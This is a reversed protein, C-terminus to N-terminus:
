VGSRWCEWGVWLLMSGIIILVILLTRNPAAPPPKLDGVWHPVFSAAFPHRALPDLWALINEICARLAARVTTPQDECRGPRRTHVTTTSPHAL